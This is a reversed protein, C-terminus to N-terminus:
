RLCFSNTQVIKKGPCNKKDPCNKQGSLKKTRVIKKDPCNKQGSLKKDPCNKQRSKKKQGSLLANVVLYFKATPGIPGHEGGWFFQFLCLCPLINHSVIEFNSSYSLRFGFWLMNFVNQYSPLYVLWHQLFKQHLHNLFLYIEFKPLVNM